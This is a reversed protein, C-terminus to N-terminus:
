PWDLTQKLIISAFPLGIIYSAPDNQPEWRANMRRVGYERHRVLGVGQGPVGEGRVELEVDRVMRGRLLHVDMRLLVGILNFIQSIEASRKRPLNM